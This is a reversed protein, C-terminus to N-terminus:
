ALGLLRQIGAKNTPVPLKSIGRVKAPDVRLVQNTAVHGIFPLEKLRLIFKNINLKVEREKCPDLFKMLANDHDNAHDHM